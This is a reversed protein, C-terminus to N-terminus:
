TVFRISGEELLLDRYVEPIGCADMLRVTRATDYAVRHPEIWHHDSDWILYVAAKSRGRPQGVSGSNIIYRASKDLFVRSSLKKKVQLGGGSSEYLALRHTHGVFTISEAQADMIHGLRTLSLKHIYQDPQDPPVGHVFRAGQIVRFLPLGTIGAVAADSLLVRNIELAKRAQPNFGQLFKPDALAREHNGMVSAVRHAALTDMVEEPEPGYGINDGLSVIKDVGTRAIDKMVAALADMNAHIDSVVATRM